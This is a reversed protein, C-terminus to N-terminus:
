KQAGSQNPGVALIRSAAKYSPSQKDETLTQIKQAIHRADDLRGAEAHLLMKVTLSLVHDPRTKLLEEAIKSAKGASKCELAYIIFTEMAAQRGNPVPSGEFLWMCKHMVEDGAQEHGLKFLLRAAQRFDRLQTTSFPRPRLEMIRLLNVFMQTYDKEKSAANFPTTYRTIGEKRTEFSQYQSLRQRMNEGTVKEVAELLDQGKRSEKTCVEDLIQRVCDLGYEEILRQAEFTAYAYRACALRNEYEVPTSQSVCYQLSMWYRLNIEKELDKHNNVDQGAAFEEAMKEGAHKKLLEYTIANAFGDSFWRWYPDTPRARMLLSAEAIEHITAFFTGNDFAYRLIQFTLSVNKKFTEDSAIPFTFEFDTIPGQETTTNFEPKYSAVDGAKDYTFNPLQGGARLFDKITKQKLICFTTKEIALFGTLDKWIRNQMRTDPEDTGLIHNIDGIIRDKKSIIARSKDRQALFERYETEFVPLKAEFAKEYYVTAGAITTRSLDLKDWVRPEAPKASEASPSASIQITCTLAIALVTGLIEYKRM